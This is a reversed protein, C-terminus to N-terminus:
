HGHNFHTFKKSIETSIMKINERTNQADMNLLVRDHMLMRGNVMVSEIDSRCLSYVLHSYINYLPSLHSKNLNILIFDAKKGVEISGTFSDVGLVRAAKITAMEILEAAKCASSDQQLHKGLFATTQIEAAINLDNNSAAGDTGFGICVEPRIFFHTDIFGSALKLNSQPNHAIRVGNQISLQKEDETLHIMHSAILRQDFMGIAHVYQAASMGKEEKIKQIETHTEALHMQIDLHHKRSFKNIEHLLDESCAYISHSAVSVKVLPHNKWKEALFLTYKLGDTPNKMNPTPFDLIAEGLMVRIGAKECELAVEDEFFYMDAFMTTGSEIMEAIALRTSIQVNPGNVFAAEAPWIYDELWTKLPMDDAFSRFLTMAAHTHCNIFGPMLLKGEANLTKTAEPRPSIDDMTCINVFSDGSIDVCANEIISRKNDMTLVMANEIRLDVPKM